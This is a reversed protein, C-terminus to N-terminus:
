PWGEHETERRYCVYPRTSCLPSFKERRHLVGVHRELTNEPLVERALSETPEERTGVSTVCTSRAAIDVTMCEMDRTNAVVHGLFYSM